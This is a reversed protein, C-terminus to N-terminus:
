NTESKHEEYQVIGIMAFSILNEKENKGLDNYGELLKKVEERFERTNM